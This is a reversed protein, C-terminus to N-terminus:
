PGVREAYELSEFGPRFSRDGRMAAIEANPKPPLLACRITESFSGPMGSASGPRDRIDNGTGIAAIAHSGMAILPRARHDRVNAMRSANRSADSREFSAAQEIRVAFAPHVVDFEIEVAQADRRAIERLGQRLLECDQLGAPFREGSSGPQLTLAGADEDAHLGVGLDRTVARAPPEAWSPASTRQSQPPM